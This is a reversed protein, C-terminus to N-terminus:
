KILAIKNILSTQETTMRVIYIGSSLNSGDFSIDYEGVVSNKDLLIKVLSGNVDYVSINLKGSKPIAYHIVTHPNFPNPYNTLLYLTNPITGKVEVNVPNQTCGSQYSNVTFYQLSSMNVFFSITGIDFTTDKYGGIIPASYQRKIYATYNGSPLGIISTCLTFYCLCHVPTGTDKEIITISDGVRSAPMTFKADCYWSINKNWIKTTDGSFTVQLQAYSNVVLFVSLYILSIIHINKM